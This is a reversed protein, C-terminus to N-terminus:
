SARVECECKVCVCRVCVKWECKVCVECHGCVCRVTGM